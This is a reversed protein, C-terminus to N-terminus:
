DCRSPMRRLGFSTRRDDGARAYQRRIPPKIISPAHMTFRGSGFRMPQLCGLAVLTLFRERM